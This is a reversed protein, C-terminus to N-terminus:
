VKVFNSIKFDCTLLLRECLDRTIARWKIYLVMATMIIACHVGSQQRWSLSIANKARIMESRDWGTVLGAASAINVVLGGRGGKEISMRETALETGFMVAM